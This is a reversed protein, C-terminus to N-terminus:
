PSKPFPSPASLKEAIIEYPALLNKELFNEEGGAMDYLLNQLTGYFGCKQQRWASECLLHSVGHRVDM